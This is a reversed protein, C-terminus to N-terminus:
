FNTTFEVATVSNHINGSTTVLPEVKNLALSSFVVHESLGISFNRVRYAAKAVAQYAFASQTTGNETNGAQDNISDYASIVGMGGGLSLVWRPAVAFDYYGNAMFLMQNLEPNGTTAWGVQNVDISNSIFRAALEAHMPIDAFRYGFAAGVGFGPDAKFPVSVLNGQQGPQLMDFGSLAGVPVSVGLDVSVYIPHQKAFDLYSGSYMNNQNDQNVPNVGAVAAAGFALMVLSTVILKKM